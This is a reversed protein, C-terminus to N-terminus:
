PALSENLCSNGVSTTTASASRRVDDIKWQGTAYVLRVTGRSISVDANVTSGDSVRYTISDDFFCYTGTVGGSAPIVSTLLLGRHGHASPRVATGDDRDQQWKPVWFIGLFDTTAVTQLENILESDTFPLDPNSRSRMVLSEYRDLVSQLQQALVHPDATTADAVVTTTTTTPLTTTPAITTTTSGTPATPGPVPALPATTDSPM